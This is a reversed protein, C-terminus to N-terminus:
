KISMGSVSGSDAKNALFALPKTFITGHDSYIVEEARDLRVAMARPRGITKLTSHCNYSPIYARGLM